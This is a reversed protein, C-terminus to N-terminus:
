RWRIRGHGGHSGATPFPPNYFVQGAPMQYHGLGPKNGGQHYLKFHTYSGPPYLHSFPQRYFFGLYPSTQVFTSPGQSPYYVPPPPAAPQVPPHVEAPYGRAEAPEPLPEWPRSTVLNPRSESGSSGDLRRGDDDLNTLVFMQGGDPEDRYYARIDDARSPTAPSSRQPEEKTPPILAEILRHSAGAEWLSVIDAPTLDEPPSSTELLRLILDEPVEAELFEMLEPLSLAFSPGAPAALLALALMLGAVRKGFSAM